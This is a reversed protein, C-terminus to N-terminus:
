ALSFAIGKILHWCAGCLLSVLFLFSFGLSDLGAREEVESDWSRIEERRGRSVRWSRGDV